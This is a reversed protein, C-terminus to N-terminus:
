STYTLSFFNMTVRSYLIAVFIQSTIFGEAEGFCELTDAQNHFVLYCAGTM